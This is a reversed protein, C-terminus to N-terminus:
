HNLSKPNLPKPNLLRSVKFFRVDWLATTPSMIQPSMRRKMLFARSLPRVVGLSGRVLCSNPILSM